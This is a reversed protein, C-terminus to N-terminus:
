KEATDPFKKETAKAAAQILIKGTAQTVHKNPEFTIRTPSRETITAYLVAATLFAGTASAHNGDAAFLEVELPQQLALDWALGVPAVQAGVKVAMSEHLRHVRGGEESNGKQGWEPYFIVKANKSKAFKALEIAEQTSYEYKGSQSYKQAQLVVHTWDGSELKEKAKPNEWIDDLFAGVVGIEAIASENTGDSEILRQVLKPLDHSATHSNGFFLVRYKANPKAQDDQTQRTATRSVSISTDKVKNEAPSDLESCSTFCYLGILTLVAVSTLRTPWFM